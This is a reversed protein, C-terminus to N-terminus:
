ALFRIRGYHGIELSLIGVGIRQHFGSRRQLFLEVVLHEAVYFLGVDIDWIAPSIVEVVCTSFLTLLIGDEATFMATQIRLFLDNEVLVFEGFPLLEHADPGERWAIVAVKQGICGVM